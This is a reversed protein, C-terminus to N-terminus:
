RENWGKGAIIKDRAKEIRSVRTATQKASSVHLNWSRQRGPTLNQFADALTPDNDLADLLEAELVLDGRNPKPPRTGARAHAMLESLYARIVPELQTVEAASQFTLVTANQSNPGMKQLINETDRLLAANMFSLRFNDRFAGFIAINRDAHMYCPHGWKSTEVLGLDTCIRRLEALGAAWTRTSCDPTDFQACRGCGKTFYDNPDTIM